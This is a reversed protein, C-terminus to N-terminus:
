CAAYRRETVLRDVRATDAGLEVAPTGVTPAAPAAAACDSESPIEPEAAYS